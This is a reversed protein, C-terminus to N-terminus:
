EVFHLTVIEFNLTVEVLLHISSDIIRVVERRFRYLRELFHREHLLAAIPLQELIEIKIVQRRADRPIRIDNTLIVALLETLHIHFTDCKVRQVSPIEKEIILVSKRVIEAFVQPEVICNSGAVDYTIINIFIAIRIMANRNPIVIEVDSLCILVVLLN